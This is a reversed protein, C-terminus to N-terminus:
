FSILQSSRTQYFTGNHTNNVKRIIARLDDENLDCEELMGEIDLHINVDLDADEDYQYGTISGILWIDLLNEIWDPTGAISSHEEIKGIVFNRVEPLLHDNGWVDPSLVSRVPSLISGTRKM